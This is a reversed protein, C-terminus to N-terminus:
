FFGQIDSDSDDLGNFHHNHFFAINKSKSIGSKTNLIAFKQVAIDSLGIASSFFGGIKVDSKQASINRWKTWDLFFKWFNNM